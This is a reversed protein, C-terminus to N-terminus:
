AFLSELGQSASAFSDVELGLQRMLTLFLDGLLPKPTGRSSHVVVHRGHRFGGGAGLIPGNRNSHLSADGMGSGFLVITSDLLPAGGADQTDRLKRLLKGLRVAHQVDLRVLDRSKHEDNNHHTLGHYGAVLSEGDLTFVQGAGPILLSIVRTSDTQLALGVLEYMLEECELLLAPAVPDFEPLELEVKRLPKGLWERQKQLKREVERLSEFYEGLKERDATGVRTELRRADELVLDLVSENSDLLYRQRAQDAPSGFLKAFLVSPREIMPLGVGSRTFSMQVGDPSGCSLQLSSFRTADGLEAAVRQDLSIRDGPRAGKLYTRWNAHGGSARHDLGSLITFHERLDEIPRLIAPAEYEAGEQAPFFEPAYLGLYAGICVLRRARPAGSPPGFAELM